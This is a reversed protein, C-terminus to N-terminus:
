KLRILQRISLHIALIGDVGQLTDKLARVEEPSAVLRNGVFDVDALENGLRAFEAEYKQVEANLDLKPTPWLGGQQGMYIKGVRVKSRRCGTSVLPPMRLRTRTPRICGGGMCLAGGAAAAQLFERRGFQKSM